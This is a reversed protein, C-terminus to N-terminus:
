QDKIQYGRDQDFNQMGKRYSREKEEYYHKIAEIIVQEIPKGDKAAMLKLLHHIDEPLDKILLEM